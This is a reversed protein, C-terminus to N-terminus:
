WTILFLSLAQRCINDRSWASMYAHRSPELYIYKTAPKYVFNHSESFLVHPLTANNKAVFADVSSLVSVPLITAYLRDAFFTDFFELVIDM